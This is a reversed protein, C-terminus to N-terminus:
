LNGLYAHAPHLSRLFTMAGSLEDVSCALYQAGTDITILGADIAEATLAAFRGRRQEPASKPQFYDLTFDEASRQEDTPEARIDRSGRFSRRDGGPTASM